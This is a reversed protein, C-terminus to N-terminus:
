KPKHDEYIRDIHKEVSMYAGKVGKLFEEHGRFKEPISVENNLMRNVLTYGKDVAAVLEKFAKEYDM